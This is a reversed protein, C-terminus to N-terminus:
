VIIEIQTSNRHVRFRRWEDKAGEEKPSMPPTLVQPSSCSSELLSARNYEFGRLDSSQTSSSNASSSSDSSTQNYYKRGDSTVRELPANRTKKLPTRMDLRTQRLNRKRDRWKGRICLILLLIAALVVLSAIVPILFEQTATPEQHYSLTVSREVTVEKVAVLVKYLMVNIDSRRTHNTRIFVAIDMAAVEAVGSNPSSAVSIIIGTDRKQKGPKPAWSGDCLLRIQAKRAHKKLFPLYRLQRCFEEILTGNPLKDWDLLINIKACDQTLDNSRPLCVDDSIDSDGHPQAVSWGQCEGYAPCPPKLCTGKKPVCVSGMSCIDNSVTSSNLCNDPGCVVKTCTRTGHVCSCTNCDEKVTTNHSQLQNDGYRCLNPDNVECNKGIKGPPCVCTYDGILDLCHAGAQCPSSACEDIDIRCDPGSFGKACACLRFGVGDVCTAGNYCPNNACDDINKDCYFGEWGNRCLCVFQEGVQDVCTANNKCPKSYCQGFDLQCTRGSYGKPCVCEFTDDLDQCTGGNQCPNRECQSAVSTCAKGKWPPVCTCVFDNVLDTCNGGNNCPSSKCENINTKCFPGEWGDRCICQYSSIGDVCTAGNGCEHGICDDIDIHCHNGTYGEDCACRFDGGQINICTGHAGCVGTDVIKTASTGNFSVAIKCSDIVQECFHGRTGTPCLCRFNNVEDICTGGHQCPMSNCENVNVDCHTGVFGSECICVAKDKGNMCTAGNACVHGICHNLKTECRKGTFGVPCKCQFSAVGDVCTGSNLCPDSECENIDAECRPGTFGAPCSCMFIGLGQICTGNNTCPNSSCKNVPSECEVGTFEPRCSCVYGNLKDICSGGNQCPNLRGCDNINHDCNVGTYGPACRCEYDDVRDICTASNECPSSACDDRDVQCLSGQYGADCVCKFGDVRDVCTAGNKCPSSLCENINTECFAGTYGPLCQCQSGGDSLFNCAAGHLCPDPNCANNGDVSPVSCNRGSYGDSCVCKYDGILDRCSGHVCPNPYCENDKYQCNNGHFGIPCVCQYGNVVATCIGKNLCPNSLCHDVLLGCNKGTYGLPCHCTYDNLQDICTGNHKCQGACDNINQDCNKGQWGELCECAYDGILDICKRGNICPRAACENTNQDCTPGEWGHACRCQFGTETNICTGANQCPQSHCDKSLQCTKGEWDSTCQCQFGEITNTCSGNHLCPNSACSDVRTECNIGTYGPHCQCRHQDPGVNFCTGGNQCPLHRCYNLDHVCGPYRKCKNCLEGTWGPDCLCQGPTTCRGHEPDCGTKCIAIDCHDGRWGPLCIKHGQEDCTYHGFIDDRPKCLITCTRGYYHEDCVVRVNYKISATPGNYSHSEWTKNPFLIGRLSTEDILQSTTNDSDRAELVLLYTTLWSFTFRLSVIQESSDTVTFSNGGLVKTTYQGFTCTGSNSGAQGDSPKLCITFFTECADLCHSRSGYITRSGDCCKGNRLEGAVNQISVFQVEFNGAGLATANFEDKTTNKNTKLGKIAGKHEPDACLGATELNHLKKMKKSREQESSYYSPVKERKESTAMRICSSTDLQGLIAIDIFQCMYRNISQDGIKISQAGPALESDRDRCLIKRYIDRSRQTRKGHHVCLWGDDIENAAKILLAGIVRNYTSEPVQSSLPILRHWSPQHRLFCQPNCLILGVNRTSFDESFTPLFYLIRQAISTADAM